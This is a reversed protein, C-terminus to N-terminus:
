GSPTTKGAKITASVAEELIADWLFPQAAKWAAESSRVFLAEDSLLEVCAAAISHPRPEVLVGAGVTVIDQAVPPADTVVVPLAAALYNKIKGPDAYRTFSDPGCDYPALGIGGQQLIRDVEKHDPIYGLFRVRSEMGRQSVLRKLDSEHEGTGVVTLEIDPVSAAIEPLANIAHQLGQKELLHGLFVLRPTPKRQPAPAVSTVGVPVLLTPAWEQEGSREVRGAHIQPSLNWVLDARKAAAEDVAHYLRNALDNDFRRPSFDITYFVVPGRLLALRRFAIGAGANFPDVGIFLDAGRGWRLFCFTLFLLDRIWVLPTRATIGPLSYRRDVVLRGRRYFRLRPRHDSAYTM